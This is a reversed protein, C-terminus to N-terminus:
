KEAESRPDQKWDRFVQLLESQAAPSLSEESLQGVIRLTQRMQEVFHRCGLCRALHADFRDRQAVPLVGELYDTVLEVLEQCTLGGAQTM